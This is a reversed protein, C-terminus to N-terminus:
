KALGRKQLETKRLDKRLIKGSITKPLEKVFEIERPYKYPATVKKVHEQIETKLDESGVKGPKLIIFAKVLQGRLDDPVGIVASEQVAPHEQLASEGEFPGIRYGASKIVDDARGVFWIYGDKDKYAKDGTYYWDGRFIESNKEENKWYGYFISPPHFPKVKVAIHGEEGPPMIKGDDDLIEVVHGPTPKGMSGPRIKLFKFNGVIATTETQGYYDYIDLGTHKKWTAIVEPNLPEGALPTIM